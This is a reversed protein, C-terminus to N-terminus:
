DKEVRLNNVVSFVGSIQNALMGAVIKDSRNAVVGELKIRSHKVIIHIPPVPQIAYRSLQPHSFLQRYAQARIRNDVTSLPLIEIRNVIREVGEVDEVAKEADKRLSARAVEGGLVVTEGDYNFYLNDFVSYYPLSALRKRIREQIFALSSRNGRTRLQVKAARRNDRTGAIVPVIEVISFLIALVLLMVKARQM